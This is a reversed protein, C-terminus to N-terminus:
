MESKGGCHQLKIRRERFVESVNELTKSELGAKILSAPKLPVLGGEM